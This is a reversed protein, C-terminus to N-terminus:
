SSKKMLDECGTKGCPVVLAMPNEVLGLYHPYMRDTDDKRGEVLIIPTEAVHDCSRFRLPGLLSEKFDLNELAGVIAEPETSGAQKIALAFLELGTYGRAAVPDPWAGHAARFAKAFAGARPVQPNDYIYSEGATM